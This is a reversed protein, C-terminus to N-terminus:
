FLNGAVIEAVKEAKERLLSQTMSPDEISLRILFSRERVRGVVQESLQGAKGNLTCAFAENGIAKLPVAHPGCRAKYSAFEKAATAMTRVAIHLAGALPPQRLFACDADDMGNGAYGAVEPDASLPGASSQANATQVKPPHAKPHSVTATVVGGLVGGATADNLWLCSEEARCLAPFFFLVILLIRRLTRM